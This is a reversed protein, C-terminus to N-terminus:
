PMGAVGALPQQGGRHSFPCAQYRRKYEGWKYKTQTAKQDKQLRRRGRQSWSPTSIDYYSFLHSPPFPSSTDKWEHERGLYFCDEKRERKRTYAKAWTWLFLNLNPIPPLLGCLLPLDGAPNKDSRRCDRRERGGGSSFCHVPCVCDCSTRQVVPESRGEREMTPNAEKERKRKGGREKERAAVCVNGSEWNGPPLLPTEENEYFNLKCLPFHILFLAKELGPWPGQGWGRGGGPEFNSGM